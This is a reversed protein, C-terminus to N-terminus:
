WKQLFPGARFSLSNGVNHKLKEWWRMIMIMNQFLNSFWSCVCRWDEVVVFAVDVDDDLVCVIVLVFVTVQQVCMEVLLRDYALNSVYNCPEWIAMEVGQTTPIINTYTELPLRCTLFTCNKKVNNLLGKVGGKRKFM